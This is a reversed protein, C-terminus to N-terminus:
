CTQRYIEITVFAKFHQQLSSSPLSSVARGSPMNEPSDLRCFMYAHQIGNSPKQLVGNLIQWSLLMSPMDAEKNGPRVSNLFKNTAM